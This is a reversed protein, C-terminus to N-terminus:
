GSALEIDPATTEAERTASLGAVFMSVAARSYIDVVDWDASGEVAFLFKLRFPSLVLGAFQEAAMTPSPCVIEGANARNSLFEALARHATEPGAAYYRRGLEPFREAEAIFLRHLSLVEPALVTRTYRYALDLLVEPVSRQETAPEVITTLLQTCAEELIHIFLRSKDGYHAYITPKSVRARRAIEDVSVGDFGREIFLERAAQEVAERPPHRRAGGLGAM